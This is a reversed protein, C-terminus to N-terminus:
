LVLVRLPPQDIIKKQNENKLCLTIQAPVTVKKQGKVKNSLYSLHSAQSFM